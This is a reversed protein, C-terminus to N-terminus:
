KRQNGRDNGRLKPEFRFSHNNTKKSNVHSNAKKNANGRFNPDYSTLKSQLLQLDSSVKHFSSKLAELYSVKKNTTPTVVSSAAVPGSSSSKRHENTHSTTPGSSNKQHQKNKNQYSNNDKKDKPKKVFKKRRQQNTSQKTSQAHSVPKNSSTGHQTNTNGKNKGKKTPLNTLNSSTMLKQVAATITHEIFTTLDQTSMSSVPQNEDTDDMEMVNDSSPADTPYLHPFKKRHRMNSDHVKANHTERKEKM